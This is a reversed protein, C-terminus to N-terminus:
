YGQAGLGADGRAAELLKLAGIEASLADLETRHLAFATQSETLKELTVNGFQMLSAGFARQEELVMGISQLVQPMLKSVDAAFTSAWKIFNVLDARLPELQTQITQAMTQAATAAQATATQVAQAAAASEQAASTAKTVATEAEGASPTAAVGEIAATAEKPKKGILSILKEVHGVQAKYSEEILRTAVLEKEKSELIADQYTKRQWELRDLEAGDMKAAEQSEEWKEGLRKLVEEYQKQREAQLKRENALETEKATIEQTLKAIEQPDSDEESRASRQRGKLDAIERELEAARESQDALKKAEAAAIEVVKARQGENQAGMLAKNAAAELDQLELQRADHERLAKREYERIFDTAEAEGAERKSRLRDLKADIDNVAKEYTDVLKQTSDKVEQIEKAKQSRLDELRKQYVGRLKLNYSEEANLITQRATNLNAAHKRYEEELRKLEERDKGAPDGAKAQLATKQQELDRMVVLEARAHAELDALRKELQKKLTAAEVAAEGERARLVEQGIEEVMKLFEEEGKKLREKAEQLKEAASKNRTMAAAEEELADANRRRLKEILELIVANGKGAKVQAELAKLLKMEDGALISAQVHTFGWLELQKAMAQQEETMKAIRADALANIEEVSKKMGEEAERITQLDSLYMAGLVPGAAVAVFSHRFVDGLTSTSTAVRDVADALGLWEAIQTGAHWGIFAAAAVAVAVGLRTMALGTSNTTVALSTQATAAAYCAKTFTALITYGNTILSLLPSLVTAALACAGVFALTAATVFGLAGRLLPFNALWEQFSRAVDGV